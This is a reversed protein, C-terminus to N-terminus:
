KVARSPKLWLLVNVSNAITSELSGSDPGGVASFYTVLSHKQLYYYLEISYSLEGLLRRIIYKSLLYLQLLNDELIALQLLVTSILHQSNILLGMCLTSNLMQFSVFELDMIM